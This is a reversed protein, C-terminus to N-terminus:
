IDSMPAVPRFGSKMVPATIVVMNRSREKADSRHNLCVPRKALFRRVPSFTRLPSALLDQQAGQCKSWSLFIFRTVSAYRGKRECVTRKAMAPVAPRMRREM